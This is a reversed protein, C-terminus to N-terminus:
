VNRGTQRLREAVAQSTYDSHWIMGVRGRRRRAPDPRFTREDIWNAVVRSPRGYGYLFFRQVERSVSLLELDPALV